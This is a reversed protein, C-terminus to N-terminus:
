FNATKFGHLDLKEKTRAEAIFFNNGFLRMVDSYSQSAFFRLFQKKSVLELIEEFFYKATAYAYDRDYKRFNNWLDKIDVKTNICKKVPVWQMLASIVKRKEDTLRRKRAM